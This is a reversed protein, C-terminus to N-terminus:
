YCKSHAFICDISPNLVFCQNESLSSFFNNCQMTPMADNLCYFNPVTCLTETKNEYPAYIFQTGKRDFTWLIPPFDLLELTASLGLGVVALLGKRYITLIKLVAGSSTNPIRIRIKKPRGSGSGNTLPVSGSGSGNRIEYIHHTSQILAQM